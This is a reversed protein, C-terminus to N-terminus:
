HWRVQDPMVRIAVSYMQAFDEPTMRIRQTIAEHYKAMYAPNRDAPAADKDICAEGTFVVINGGRGDSDLHLSVKPHRRIHDLKHMGPRSYILLSEGDWVFWVPRPQPTGSADVTTLWMIWEERLRQMVRQGFESSTDILM